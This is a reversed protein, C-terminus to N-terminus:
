KCSEEIFTLIDEGFLKLYGLDIAKRFDICALEPKSMEIYVLGRNRYAYSNSSDIEISKNILNMSKSLDGKNLYCNGLNNYLFANNPELELAKNFFYIASDYEQMDLFLYGINHIIANSQPNHDLLEKALPIAKDYAKTDSYIALLIAQSPETYYSIDIIEELENIAKDYQQIMYLAQAFDLHIAVTLSDDNNLNRCKTLYDLAIDPQHFNIHLMGLRHYIYPSNIGDKEAKSLLEYAQEIQSNYYYYDIEHILDEISQGNVSLFNM